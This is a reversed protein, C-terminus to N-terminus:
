VLSNVDESRSRFYRKIDERLRIVRPTDDALRLLGNAGRYVDTEPNYKNDVLIRWRSSYGRASKRGHFAHTLMGPVYGIDRKIYRECRAQLNMVMAKYTPQVGANFSLEGRGVLSLALHRDGSGLIAKDPLGAMSEWAYRTAGWAFGPHGGGTYGNWVPAGNLYSSVFSHHINLAEGCPGLDVATSWPQIVHATQLAQISENLWDRNHFTIDADLWIIYKWDPFNRTVNQEVLCNLANEKFWLEDETRLQLAYPDGAKTVAFGREGNQVEVTHFHFKHEPNRAQDREIRKKFARYLRYRSKYRVPNSVMTIVHTYPRLHDVSPM